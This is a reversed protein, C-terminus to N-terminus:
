RNVGCFCMGVFVPAEPLELSWLEPPNCCCLRTKEFAQLSPSLPGLHPSTWNGSLDGGPSCVSATGGPRGPPGPPFFSGALAPSGPGGRTPSLGQLLSQSGVGTSKGPFGWPCLLRSPWLEHARLTPCLEAVLGGGHQRGVACESLVCPCATIRGVRVSVRSTWLGVRHSWKGKIVEEYCWRGPSPFPVGSWYEQRSFGMSPPAQYAVIWPTAFLRVRHPSKVKKREMTGKPSPFPLGSWHEQRSFGM